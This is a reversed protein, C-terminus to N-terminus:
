GEEESEVVVSGQKCPTVEEEEESSQYIPELEEELRSLDLLNTDPM